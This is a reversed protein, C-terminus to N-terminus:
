RLRRLLRAPALALGGARWRRSGEIETIRQELRANDARVEALREQLRGIRQRRRRAAARGLALGERLQHDEVVWDPMASPAPEGAFLEEPWVGDRPLRRLVVYFELTNRRTPLLQEIAWSCQGLDRIEAIQEAFSGPTFTWVHSDVYEGKRARDVDALVQELGYVRNEYGPLSGEWADTARVHAHGRKYDYVARISPVTDGHEHAELLQGTTTGPRHLDFCYRRDPVALVLAGGDVTVAAVQDLWGILDPVHEVVHSAMVWDFRAEGVSEPLSRVREGDFLPFDIAPIREADVAPDGDYSAILGDRDFVDVYSVDAAERPVIAHHLPGIELGRGTGFDHLRWLLRQRPDLQTQTM